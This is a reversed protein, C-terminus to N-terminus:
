LRLFCVVFPTISGSEIVAHLRHRGDILSGEMDFTLPNSIVWEGKRMMKAYQGVRKQVVNQNKACSKGLWESALEPTVMIIKSDDTYEMAKGRLLKSEMGRDIPYSRPM